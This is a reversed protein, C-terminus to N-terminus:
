DRTEDDDDDRTADCRDIPRTVVRVKASARPASAKRFNGALATRATLEVTQSSYSSYEDTM